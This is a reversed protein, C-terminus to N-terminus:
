CKVNHNNDKYQRDNEINGGKFLAVWYGEASQASPDLDVPKWVRHTPVVVFNQNRRRLVKLSCRCFKLNQAQQSEKLRCYAPFVSEAGVVM